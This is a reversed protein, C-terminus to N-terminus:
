CWSQLLFDSQSCLRYWRMTPLRQNLNDESASRYKRPLSMPSWCCGDERSGGNNLCLHEKSRLFQQFSGMGRFRWLFPRRWFLQRRLLARDSQLILSQCWWCRRLRQPRSSQGFWYSWRYCPRIPCDKGLAQLRLKLSWIGENAYRGSHLMRPRNKTRSRKQQQRWQILKCGPEWLSPHALLTWLCPLWSIILLRYM